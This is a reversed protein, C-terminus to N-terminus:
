PLPQQTGFKNDWESSNQSSVDFAWLNGQLDGAYIVDTIFDGNSDVATPSSLGNKQLLSGFGTNISKILKGTEIDIIFLVAQHSNSGYGNAVIATWKGNAMKVIVLSIDSANFMALPLTTSVTHPRNVLEGCRIGTFHINLTSQITKPARKIPASM